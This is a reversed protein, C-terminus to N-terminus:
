AATSSSPTPLLFHLRVTTGAPTSHILVLDCLEQVLVLGRGGVADWPPPIRGALPDAIYGTDSLQCVLHPGQSWLSLRGPGSTHEITNAALENVALVADQRRESELGADAAIRAVLDRVQLLTREDIVAISEAGAPPAPLPPSFGALTRAPDTYGRSIRLRAPSRVARHTRLVDRIMRASLGRVDYACLFAADRGAFVLNVLAEHVVCATYEETSRLPWVPEVVVFPRQCDGDETFPLLLGPIIRGPNRGAVSLDRYAIRGGADTLGEQLVELRGAPVAVLVPAGTELAPKVFSRVGDLYQREDRYCFAVHEPRSVLPRLSHAPMMRIATV